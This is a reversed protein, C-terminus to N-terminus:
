ELQINKRPKGDGGSSQKKRWAPRASNKSEPQSQHFSVFRNRLRFLRQDQTQRRNIDRDLYENWQTIENMAAPDLPTAHFVPKTPLHHQVSVGDGSKEIHGIRISALINLDLRLHIQTAFLDAAHAPSGIHNSLKGM